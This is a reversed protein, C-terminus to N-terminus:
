KLEIVLPKKNTNENFDYGGVMGGCEYGNINGAFRCNQITM